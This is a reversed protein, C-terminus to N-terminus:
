SYVVYTSSMKDHWGQKKPDFAVMVYSILPIIGVASQIGLSAGLVSAVSGPLSIVLRLLAQLLTIREGSYNIVRIGVAIKGVTAQLPSSEMISYYGCYVVTLAVTYMQPPAMVFDFNGYLLYGSGFQVIILIIGDILNAVVRIWFGAYRPDLEKQVPSDLIENM